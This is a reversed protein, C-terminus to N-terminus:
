AVLPKRNFFYGIKEMITEPERFGLLGNVYKQGKRERLSDICGLFLYEDTNTNIDTLFLRIFDVNQMSRGTDKFWNIFDLLESTPIDELLCKSQNRKIQVDLEPSYCNGIM